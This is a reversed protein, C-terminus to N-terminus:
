NKIFEKFSQTCKEQMRVSRKIVLGYTYVKPAM